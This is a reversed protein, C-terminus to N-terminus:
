TEKKAKKPTKMEGMPWVPPRMAVLSPWYAHKASLVHRPTLINSKLM